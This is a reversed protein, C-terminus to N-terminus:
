KLLRKLNGKLKVKTIKKLEEILKQVKEPGPEPLRCGKSDAGISVYKPKLCKIWEVLKDLRFEMIPEISIMTKINKPLNYMACMRSYPIPAKSISFTKRNTEITTGLIRKAPFKDLFELFREPNKTQFLYTNDHRRCHQLVLDIWQSKIDNAFMDNSSGVFITNGKGLNTKFEKEDLYIKKDKQKWRKRM